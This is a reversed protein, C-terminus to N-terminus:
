IVSYSLVHVDQGDAGTRTQKKKLETSSHKNRSYAQWDSSNILDVSYWLLHM